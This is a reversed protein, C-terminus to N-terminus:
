RVTTAHTEVTAPEQRLGGEETTAATYTPPPAHSVGVGNGMEVDDDDVVEGRERARAKTFREIVERNKRRQEERDEGSTQNVERTDHNVGKQWARPFWMWVFIFSIVVIGGLVGVPIAWSAAGM